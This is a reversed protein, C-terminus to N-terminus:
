DEENRNTFKRMVEAITNGLFIMSNIVDEEGGLVKMLETQLEVAKNHADNVRLSHKTCPLNVFNDIAKNYENAAVAYESLAKIMIKNLKM